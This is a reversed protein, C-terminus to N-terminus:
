SGKGKVRGMRADDKVGWGLGRRKRAMQKVQGETGEKKIGRRSSVEEKKGEV